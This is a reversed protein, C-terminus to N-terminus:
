LIRVADRGFVIPSQVRSDIYVLEVEVTGKGRMLSDCLRARTAQAVRVASLVSLIVRCGTHLESFNFPPFKIVFGCYFSYSVSFSFCQYDSVDVATPEPAPRMVRGYRMLVTHIEDNVNLLDLLVADTTGRSPLSDQYAEWSSIAQILRKSMEYL